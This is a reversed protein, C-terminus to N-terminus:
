CRILDNRMLLSSWTSLSPFREEHVMHHFHHRKNAIGTSLGDPFSLYFFMILVLAMITINQRTYITSLVKMTVLISAMSRADCLCLLILSFQIFWFILLVFAFVLLLFPKLHYFAISTQNNFSSALNAKYNKLPLILLQVGSKKRRNRLPARERQDCTRDLHPHTLPTLGLDSKYGM